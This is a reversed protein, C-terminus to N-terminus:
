ANWVTWYNWYNIIGVVCRIGLLLGSCPKNRRFLKLKLHCRSCTKQRTEIMFRAFKQSRLHGFSVYIWLLESFILCCDFCHNEESKDTGLFVLTPKDVGAVIKKCVSRLGCRNGELCFFLWRRINHWSVTYTWINHFFVTHSSVSTAREHLSHVFECM